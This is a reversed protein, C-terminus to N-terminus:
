EQQEEKMLQLHKILKDIAAISPQVNFELKVECERTLSIFVISGELGHGRDFRDSRMSRVLDKAMFGSLLKKYVEPSFNSALHYEELDGFGSRLQLVYNLTERYASICNSAGTRTFGLERMMFNLAFKDTSPDDDDIYRSIKDFIPPKNGASLIAMKKQRYSAPDAIQKALDSLQIKDGSGELLGYQRLAALATASPGSKGSFGLSKYVNDATMPGVGCRHHIREVFNVAEKLSYRPFRPSRKRNKRSLDTM